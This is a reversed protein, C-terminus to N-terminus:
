VAIRLKILEDFYHIATKTEVLTSSEPLSYIIGASVAARQRAGPTIVMPM